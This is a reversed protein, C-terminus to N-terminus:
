AMDDYARVYIARFTLGGGSARGAFRWEWVCLEETTPWVHMADWPWRAYLMRHLLLVTDHGVALSAQVVPPSRRRWGM